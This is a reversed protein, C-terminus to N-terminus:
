EAGRARRSLSYELLIRPSFTGLPREYFVLGYELEIGLAVRESLSRLYAISALIGGASSREEFPEGYKREQRLFGFEALAGLGLGLASGNGLELFLELPLRLQLRQFSSEEFGSRSMGLSYEGELCIGLYFPRSKLGAVPKKPVFRLGIDACFVGMCAEGWRGGTTWWGAACPIEFVNRAPAPPLAGPAIALDCLFYDAVKRSLDEILRGYHELDDAALFSALVRKGERSLLKLEATYTAERTRLYGYILYPCGRLECSRAADLFSLPPREAREPLAFGLSGRLATADLERALDREPRPAGGGEESDAGLVAIPAIGITLARAGPCPAAAVALALALRAAM